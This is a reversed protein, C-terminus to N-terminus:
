ALVKAVAKELAMVDAVSLRRISFDGWVDDIGLQHLLDRLYDNEGILETNAHKLDNFADLKAELVEIQEALNSLTESMSM